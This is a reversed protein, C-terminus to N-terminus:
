ERGSVLLAGTGWEDFDTPPEGLEPFREVYIEMAGSVDSHYAVWQGNPSVSPAGSTAGSQILQNVAPEGELSLMRVDAVVGRERNTPGGLQTFLLQSGDQGWSEPFLWIAGPVTLLEEADGTGDARKRMLSPGRGFVVHTGDPTWLPNQDIEGESTLPSRIGREVDYTWLRDDTFSMVVRTGDPSVRVDKYADPDLGAVPEERGQRDVWVLSRAAAGGGSGGTVYVLSGDRAIDFDAAGSAKTVVGNLVPVPSPNTVELRDLDFGVARLSGSVGYVIHGTPSYRADSGGSILIRQESTELNLLAIQADEATEGTLITFLVARGWPLFHPWAHNVPDQAADPRTLEEPDGGNASVRWLGSAGFTAFVITDNEGWTASQAPGETTCIVVSPGGLISVKRLTSDSNVSFGVWDGDPSVFPSFVLADLGPLLLPSATLADVARVYLQVPSVQVPSGGTVQYVVRSGDPSIAIGRLGQVVRVTAPAPPPIAFREVRPTVLEPRTEAWVALGVLAAFVLAMTATPIPRQWIQLHAAATSEVTTEFAGEMALRVDAIDRVRQRPDKQLCTALM